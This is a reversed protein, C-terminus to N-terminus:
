KWKITILQGYRLGSILMQIPNLSLKNSILSTLDPKIIQYFCFSAFVGGALNGLWTITLSKIYELLKLHSNSFVKGTFLDTKM